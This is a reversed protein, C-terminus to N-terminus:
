PTMLALKRKKVSLNIPQHEVPVSLVSFTTTEGFKGLKNLILNLEDTSVVTIGVFFCYEGTTHVIDTIGEIKEAEKLFANIYGHPLKVAVLVKQAYNLRGFNINATFGRIIGEDQLRKIREAVAPATLGVRRGIEANSIRADLQLENLIAYHLEDIQM